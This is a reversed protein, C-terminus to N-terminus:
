VKVGPGLRVENKNPTSAPNYRKDNTEENLKGYYIQNDIVDLSDSKAKQDEEYLEEPIEMIFGLRGGQGLSEDVVRKVPKKTQPDNVHSWGGDFAQAIRGPSDSVWRRVYGPRPPYSLKAVHQGLPVRKKGTAIPLAESEDVEPAATVAKPALENGAPDVVRGFRKRPAATVRVPANPM